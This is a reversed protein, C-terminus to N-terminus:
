RRSTGSGLGGLDSPVNVGLFGHEAFEAILEHSPPEGSEEISRAIEPLRERVYDRAAAQLALQDDNLRFDVAWRTYSKHLSWAHRGM